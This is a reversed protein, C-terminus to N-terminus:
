EGVNIPSLAFDCLAINQLALSKKSIIDGM